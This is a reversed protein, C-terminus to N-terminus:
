KNKGQSQVTEQVAALAQKGSQAEMVAVAVKTMENDKKELSARLKDIEDEKAKVLAKLNVNDHELLSKERDFELATIQSKTEYDSKLKNSIIAVHKDVEKKVDADFSDLKTKTAEVIEEKKRAM